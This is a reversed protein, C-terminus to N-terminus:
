ASKARAIHVPSVILTKKMRGDRIRVIYSGGQKKVIEGSRGNYRPHPLGRFYPGIGIIVREGPKFPKVFDNATLKKRMKTAKTGKSLFGKSRKVM